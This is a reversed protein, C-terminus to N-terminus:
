GKRGVCLGGTYTTAGLLLEPARYWLTVVRPTMAMDHPHYHRTHSTPCNIPASHSFCLVPSPPLCADPAPHAAANCCMSYCATCMIVIFFIQM